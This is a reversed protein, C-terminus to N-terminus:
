NRTRRAKRQTGKKAGERRQPQSNSHRLRSQGHHIYRRNRSRRGADDARLAEGGAHTRGEHPTRDLAHFGHAAGPLGSRQGPLSAASATTSDAAGERRRAHRSLVRALPSLRQGRLQAVKYAEGMTRLMSFSTGGGVDTGLAFRMGAADAAAFDFLGSGLFLNSTPCFAAAAGTTRWAARSGDDDLHICHAYVARERLLGFRDYVDLYSRADPFLERM